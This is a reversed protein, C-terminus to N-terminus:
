MEFAAQVYFYTPDGGPNANPADTAFAGRFLHAFGADVAVNGPVRFRLVLEIQHGVFDGSGGTPDRVGSATWADAAEALWVARYAAFADFMAHPTIEVRLGPSHLNSRAMAGFQAYTFPGLGGGPPSPEDVVAVRDGYVTEARELFDGITLPVIM